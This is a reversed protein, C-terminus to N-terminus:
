RQEIARCRRITTRTAMLWTGHAAPILWGDVPEGLDHIIGVQDIATLREQQGVLKNVIVDGAFCANPCRRVREPEPSSGTGPWRALSRSPALLSSNDCGGPGCM